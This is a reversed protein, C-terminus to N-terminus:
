LIRILALLSPDFHMLHRPSCYRGPEVPWAHEPCGQERAWQLVATHGGMLANEITFGDWPWGNARL